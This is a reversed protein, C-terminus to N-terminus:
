ARASAGGRDVPVEHEALRPPEHLELQRAFAPELQLMEEVTACARRNRLRRGHGCPVALDGDGLPVRETPDDRRPRRYRSRRLVIQQRRRLLLMVLRLLWRCLLRLLLLGHQLLQRLRLLQLLAVDM